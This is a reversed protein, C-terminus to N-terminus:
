GDEELEMDSEWLLKVAPQSPEWLWSLSRPARPMPESGGMLSLSKSSFFRLRSSFSSFLPTLDLPM